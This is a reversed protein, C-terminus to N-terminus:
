KFYNYISNWLNIFLKSCFEFLFFFPRAFCEFSQSLDKRLLDTYKGASVLFM